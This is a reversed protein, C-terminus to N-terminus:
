PATHLQVLPNEGNPALTVQRCASWAVPKVLEIKMKGKGQKKM